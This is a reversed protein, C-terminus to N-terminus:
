LAAEREERKVELTVETGAGPCSRIALSGGIRAARERMIQLGVHEGSLGSGRSGVDFGSGDDAVSLRLGTRECWLEVGVRNAQAHKRVNSLAEQVIYLIQTRADVDLPAAAGHVRLDAAVGSQATFKALAARVATELDPEDFRARFHQLLERVAGYSEQVGSEIMAVVERAEDVKGAALAAELMQAQLNLFALGQAISDHLERAILNREESVAMEKERSRLRAHEITLALQQGLSDLVTRDGEALEVPTAFFLNFIGLPQRDHNIPVACVTAFGAQACHELQGPLLGDAVPSVVSADGLTVAGCICEGCRLVAEREVFEGSLGDHTTLYLNGSDSEFLRVSAAAAGFTQKVRELFSRSLEEIGAPQRLLRSIDLLIELERNKEALKRTKTEVREELTGYLSQLHEAMRNFGDSLEGFEDGTLVPVRAGFDEREMRQMGRQLEHVPRIVAVFFFRILAVTGIVALVILLVQSSRLVNTNRGYSAETRLVVDNIDNVFTAVATEFAALAASRQGDDAASVARELLPKLERHWTDGIRQVAVRIQEDRPLLLPRSPDGRALGAQVRELADVEAQLGLLRADQPDPAVPLRALAHAIKWSRMRLSGADNIAAAVGELQWSVYLTLGIAVLACLFFGVLIGIIKTSLKRGLLADLLRNVPHRAINRPVRFTRTGFCTTLAPRLM